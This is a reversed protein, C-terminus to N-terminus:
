RQLALSFLGARVTANDLVGRANYDLTLDLKRFGFPSLHGPGAVVRYAVTCTMGGGTPTRALTQVTIARRGDYFRFPEPCGTSHALRGFAQALDIIGAPVRAPDSLDTRESTPSIDTRLAKGADHLVTISRSKRRSQSVGTYQRMRKGDVTVPRSIAEFTGDGVGLPTNDLATAMRDTRTKGSGSSTYEVTGLVRDGLLARFTQAAAGHTALICACVLVLIRVTM